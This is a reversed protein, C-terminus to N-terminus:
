VKCLKNGTLKSSFYHAVPVSLSPKFVSRVMFVLVHSAMKRGPVTDRDVEGLDVLGTM